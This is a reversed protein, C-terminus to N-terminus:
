QRRLNLPFSETSLLVGVTGSTDYRRVVVTGVADQAGQLTGRYRYSVSTRGPTPQVSSLEFDVSGPALDPYSVSLSVFNTKFVGSSSDSVADVADSFSDAYILDRSPECSGITGCTQYLAGGMVQMSLQHRTTSGSWRGIWGAYPAFSAPDQDAPETASQCGVLLIPLLFSVVFRAGPPRRM